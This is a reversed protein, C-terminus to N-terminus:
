CWFSSLKRFLEDDHNKHSIHTHARPQHPITQKSILHSHIRRESIYVKFTKGKTHSCSVQWKPVSTQYGLALNGFEYHPSGLSLGSNNWNKNQKINTFMYFDNCIVYKFKDKHLINM